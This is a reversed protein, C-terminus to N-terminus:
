PIKVAGLLYKLDNDTFMLGAGIFGGTLRSNLIDTIGGRVFLPGFVQYTAGIQLDPKLNPMNPYDKRGFNWLDSTFTLRNNYIYDFGVAGTSEKLGGRVVFYSKGPRFFPDKFIRAYQLTYEPKYEYITQPNNNIYQTTVRGMSNGVIEFLYYQHNNPQFKLSLIGKSQGARFLEFRGGIYLNSRNVIKGLHSFASLANNANAYLSKDNVLKGLTGQGTNIKALIQNLEDSSQKLSKSLEAFNKISKHVGNQNEVVLNNLNQSLTNLNAMLVPTQDKLTSSLAKLNEVLTRIDEKNQGTIQALNKATRDIDAITQPLTLNLQYTLMDLNSITQKLTEQNQAVMTNLNKTLADLNQIIGEIQDRNQSIISALNSAVVSFNKATNNLNKILSETDSSVGINEIMSNPPLEGYISHGEEVSVYKDGMLGLTGISVEADKYIPIDKKVSFVVLVKGNRFSIKEVRGAKVGNVRVEAGVSLGHVDDLLAEYTNSKEFFYRISSFSIAMFAFAIASLLVFLGLKFYKSKV